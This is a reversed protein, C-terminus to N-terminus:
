TEEIVDMEDESDEEGEIEEELDEEKMKPDEAPPQFEDDSTIQGNSITFMEETRATNMFPRGLVIPTNLDEKIDMVIFDTPYLFKDVKELINEVIGKPYRITHDVLQITMKTPTLDGLELRKYLSYPMLNISAGLDALAQTTGYQYVSCPLTFRGNDGLKMPLSNKPVKLMTDLFKGNLKFDRLRELSNKLRGPYPVRVSNIEPPKRM